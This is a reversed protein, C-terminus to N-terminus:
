CDSIQSQWIAERATASVSLADMAVVSSVLIRVALESEMVASLGEVHRGLVLLAAPSSAIATMATESSALIQSAPYSTFVVTMVTEDNVFEAIEAFTFGAPDLGLIRAAMNQVALPDNLVALRVDEPLLSYGTASLALQQLACPAGCLRLRQSRRGQVVQFSGARTQDSLLAEIRDHTLFGRELANVMRFGQIYRLEM